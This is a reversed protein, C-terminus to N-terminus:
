SCCGAAKQASKYPWKGGLQVATYYIGAIIRCHYRYPNWWGRKNCEAFMRQYFGSDCESRSKGCTAYCNDHWECAPNFNYGYPQDKIILDGWNGPGCALGAPDVLNIPNNLVYTYFNIGGSFEIPDINIFRGITPDYYRARYYMLGSEDDLRRGTYGYPNDVAEIKSLINGFADYEYTNVVTESSATLSTVSGLGDKLYFYSSGGRRMSIIEDVGFGHTYSAAGFGSGDYEAIVDPLGKMLDYVFWTIVGDVDKMIRNGFPDYRYESYTGDPYDIRMLRNEYDYQYSTFGSADTKSIANGNADYTFSNSNYSTLGNNNDYTWNSHLASTLRNYVSDYTYTETSSAPHSAQLLQYINDYSYNHTGALTTMATRNSTNDYTYSYSSIVSVTSTNNVLSLLRSVANYSYTSYNGNDLDKRLVRGLSDYTYNTIEGQPNTISLLRKLADYTYTTAGGEPNTMSSKMGCCLYSYSVAKGLTVNTVQTPRNSADYDLSYSIDSNTANIINGNVDYTFNTTTADPYSKVAQRHLSDYTFNVSDGNRDTKAILNGDANYFFSESTGGPYTTNIVRNLADYTFSTTNGNADTISLRNGNADYIYSTVSGLSNTEGVLQNLANFSYSTTNGNADTTSIRNGKADYTNQTVNGLPDMQQVLRNYSDYIFTATNGAPDTMSTLNGNADFSFTTTNGLADTMSTIRNMLDYVYTTTNGLPDTETIRNGKSDYTYATINGLPDTVRTLNGYVDYQYTTTNGLPDTVSTQNGTSNYTFVTQNQLPGGFDRIIKTNNGNADYEYKTVHGMPDTITLVQNFVPDYTYSTTNGLADTETLMNGNSDYTYSTTNGNADTESILNYDSDFVKSETYGDPRQISTIVGNSDYTYTWTDGTNNDVKQTQTSSIYNYTFDGEEDIVRSVKGDSSYLLSVVTNGLSDIISTLNHESDYNYYTVNGDPDTVSVLNGDSDYSYSVTRGTFDTISAIKGNPGKVIDLTRGSSDSLSNPCGTDYSTTVQNNNRDVIRTLSGEADFEYKTGDKEKLTYTGDPNKTLTQYIGLPPSFTGDGNDIFDYRQGNPMLIKAVNETDGTIYVLKMGFNSSWGYGFLGSRFNDRSNYTKSIELPINGPILLDQTKYIYNGDSCSVPSLYCIKQCEDCPPEPPEEPDKPDKPNTSDHGQDWPKNYGYADYPLLFANIAVFLGILILTIFFVKRIMKVKRM